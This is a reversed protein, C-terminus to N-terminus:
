GGIDPLMRLTPPCPVIRKYEVEMRKQVTGGTIEFTTAVRTSESTFRDIVQFEKAVKNAGKATYKFIMASQKPDWRGTVSTPGSKSVNDMWTGDYSEEVANFTLLGIARFTLTDSKSIYTRQIAHEDLVWGIEETGKVTAIVKGKADFHHETLTWAGLYRNLVDLGTSSASEKASEQQSIAATALLGTALLTSAIILGGRPHRIHM